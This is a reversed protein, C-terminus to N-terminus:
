PTAGIPINGVKAWKSYGFQHWNFFQRRYPLRAAHSQAVTVNKGIVLPIGPDTHLVAGDQINSNEGVSIRANDGRIM